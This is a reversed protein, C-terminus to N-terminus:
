KGRHEHAGEKRTGSCFLGAAIILLLAEDSANLLQQKEHSHLSGILDL